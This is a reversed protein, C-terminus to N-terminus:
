LRTRYLTIDRMVSIHIRPFKGMSLKPPPLFFGTEKGVGCGKTVM